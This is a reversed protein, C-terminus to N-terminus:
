RRGSRLCSRWNGAQLKCRIAPLCRIVEGALDSQENKFRQLGLLLLACVIVVLSYSWLKRNQMM